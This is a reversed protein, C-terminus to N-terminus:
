WGGLRGALNGIELLVLVIGFSIGGLWVNLIIQRRHRDKADEDLELVRASLHAAIQTMMQRLGIIAQQLEGVHEALHALEDLDIQTM